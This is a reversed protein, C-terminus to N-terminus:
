AEGRRAPKCRVHGLVENVATTSLDQDSHLYLKVDKKMGETDVDIMYVWKIATIISHRQRAIM